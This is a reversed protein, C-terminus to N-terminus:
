GGADVRDADLAWVPIGTEVLAIMLADEPLGESRLGGHLLRAVALEEGPIRVADPDLGIQRFFVRYAHPIPQTRLAIVSDGRYRDSLVRLRQKIARPSSRSGAELTLWVLRLGPLEQRVAPDLFGPAATLELEDTM